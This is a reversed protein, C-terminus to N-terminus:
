AELKGVAGRRIYASAPNLAICVIYRNTLIVRPWVSEYQWGLVPRVCCQVFYMSRSLFVVHVAFSVRGVTYFAVIPLAHNTLAVYRLCELAIHAHCLIVGVDSMVGM